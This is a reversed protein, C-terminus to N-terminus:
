TKKFLLLHTTTGRQSSEEQQGDGFKGAGRLRPNMRTCYLYTYLLGVLLCLGALVFMVLASNPLGYIWGSDYPSTSNGTATDLTTADDKTATLQVDNVQTVAEMMQLSLLL